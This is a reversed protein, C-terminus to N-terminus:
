AKEIGATETPGKSEPAPAATSSVATPGGSGSASPASFNKRHGASLMVNSQMAAILEKILNNDAVDYLEAGTTIQTGDEMPYNEVKVISQEFQSRQVLLAARVAAKPDTAGKSKDAIECAYDEVKVNSVYKLHVTPPDEMGRAFAPVYPIISGPRLGIFM